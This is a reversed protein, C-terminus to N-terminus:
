RKEDDTPIRASPPGLYVPRIEPDVSKREGKLFGRAKIGSPRIALRPKALLKFVVPDIIPDGTCNTPVSADFSTDAIKEVAEILDDMNNQRKSKRFLIGAAM